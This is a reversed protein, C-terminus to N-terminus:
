YVGNLDRSIKRQWIGGEVIELQYSEFAGGGEGKEYLHLQVKDAEPSWLQFVTAKKSYSLWLEDLNSSQHDIPNLNYNKDKCSTIMTFLLFPIAIKILRTITM